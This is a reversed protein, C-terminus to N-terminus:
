NNDNKYNVIDIDFDELVKDIKCVFICEDKDLFGIVIGLLIDIKEGVVFVGFGFDGKKFFLKDLNIDIVYYVLNFCMLLGFDFELFDKVLVMIGEFIGFIIEIIRGMKKVKIYLGCILDDIILVLLEEMVIFM